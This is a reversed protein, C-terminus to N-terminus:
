VMLIRMEREKAKAKKIVTLLGMDGACFCDHSLTFVHHIRDYYARYIVVLVAHQCAREEISGLGSRAHRSAARAAPGGLTAGVLGAAQVYTDLHM